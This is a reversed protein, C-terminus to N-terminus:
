AGQHRLLYRRAMFLNALGRGAFLGNANKGLSRYRVKTFGPVRKITLFPHEVKARARSRTRNKARDKDTLPRSRRGKKHTLDQYAPCARPARRRTRYLGRRGM